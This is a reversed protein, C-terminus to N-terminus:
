NLEAMALGRGKFSEFAARRFGRFFAKKSCFQNSGSFFDLNQGEFHRNKLFTARSGIQTPWPQNLEEPGGNLGLARIFIVPEGGTELIRVSNRLFKSMRSLFLKRNSTSRM